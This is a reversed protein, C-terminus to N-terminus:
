TNTYRLTHLSAIKANIVKVFAAKDDVYLGIRTYCRTGGYLGNLTETNKLKIIVNHSELGGLISLKKFNVDEDYSKSSLEISEITNINITTEAMIGYCLYLNNDNIIIPRQSMSKLFGLIQFATYISLGTLLWATLTSWQALLLHIAVTEIAILFIFAILLGITGSDKHYSYENVKLTKKKWLILGYYFVAIETAVLKAPIKPFITHCTNKLVTYFDNTTNKEQKYRKIAESVKYIVFSFVALEIVPLAWTKFASLLNQHEKPIIFNAIVIGFILVPVLSTKPIKTKRITLFYVFPLTLLLDLTIGISLINPNSNFVNSIVLAYSSLVILAPLSLALIDQKKIVTKYM